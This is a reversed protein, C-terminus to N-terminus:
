TNLINIDVSYYIFHDDAILFQEFYNQYSIASKTMVISASWKIIFLYINTVWTFVSLKPTLKWQLNLTPLFYTEMEISFFPHPLSQLTILFHFLRCSILFACVSSFQWHIVELHCTFSFYVTFKIRLRIHVTWTSNYGFM